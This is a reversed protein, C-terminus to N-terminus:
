SLPVSCFEGHAPTWPSSAAPHVAVSSIAVAFACRAEEAQAQLENVKKKLQQDLGDLKAAQEKWTTMPEMLRQVSADQGLGDALHSQCERTEISSSAEAGGSHVATRDPEMSIAGTGMHVPDQHLGEVTMGAEEEEPPFFPAADSQEIEFGNLIAALRHRQEVEASGPTTSPAPDGEFPPIEVPSPARVSSGPSPVLRVMACLRAKVVWIRAYPPLYEGEEEEKGERGTVSSPLNTVTKLESRSKCGFFRKLQRERCSRGITACEDSGSCSRAHM